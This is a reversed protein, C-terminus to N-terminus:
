AGGESGEIRVVEEWAALSRENEVLELERQETVAGPLIGVRAAEGCFCELTSLFAILVQCPSGEKPPFEALYIVDVFRAARSGARGDGVEVEITVVAQGDIADTRV